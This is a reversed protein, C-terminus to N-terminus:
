FHAIIFRFRIKENGAMEVDVLGLNYTPWNRRLYWYLSVFGKSFTLLQRFLMIVKQKSDETPRFKIKLININELM